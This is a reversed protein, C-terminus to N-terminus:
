EYYKEYWRISKFRKTQSYVPNATSGASTTGLSGQNLIGVKNTSGDAYSAVNLRSIGDGQKTLSVTKTGNACVGYPLCFRANTSVGTVGGTCADPQQSSSQTPNYLSIYLDSYQNTNAVAIYGNLAKVTGTGTATKITGDSNYESATLVYYWGYKAGTASYALQLNASDYNTDTFDYMESENIDTKKTSAANTATIASAQATTSYLDSRAIDRDLLVYVRNNQPSTQNLPFSRNGSALSVAAFRGAGDNHITIAPMEYFRQGSATGSTTSVGSANTTTTFGSFNGIRVLDGFNTRATDRANNLDVRFVQGGLDGFYLHDILGDADRDLTKIQSVVSYKLNTDTLGTNTKANSGRTASWILAGTTADFIYVGAGANTATVTPQYGDTEYAADYGGGVIMVNKIQNNFRIKGITPKSWSQGMLQLVPNATTTSVGSTSSTITGAVPNIQFLFGPNATTSGVNKVDLGYYSKGGMRMGGYINARTATFKNSSPVGYEVWATWPADIGYYPSSTSRFTNDASLLGDRRGGTRTATLATDTVSASGDLTSSDQLIENPLFSFVEQGNSVNVMHLIGQMSGFIAYDKRTSATIKGTGSSYTGELTLLIPDSHLVGGVQQMIPLTKVNSLTFKYPTVPTSVLANLYTSTLKYGLASLLYPQYVNRRWGSTGTTVATLETAPLTYDATLVNETTLKTLTTSDQVKGKDAGATTNITANIWLPRTNIQSAATATNLAASTVNPITLNALMGGKLASDGDNIDNPNWLDRTAKAVNGNSDLVNNSVDDKMQGNLVQYKKLNGLWLQQTSQITSGTGSIEPKFQPAFVYPYPTTTELQDAPVVYAGFSASDFSGQAVANVFKLLANQVKEGTDAFTYGGIPKTTGYTDGQGLKDGLMKLANSNLTNAYQRLYQGKNKEVTSDRVSNPIYCHDDITTGSGLKECVEDPAKTLLPSYGITALYIRKKSTKPANAAARVLNAIYSWNGRDQYKEAKTYDTSLETATLATGLKMEYYEGNGGNNSNGYGNATNYYIAPVDPDTGTIITDRLIANNGSNPINANAIVNKLLLSAQPPAIRTPAGDTLFFVGQTSCQKDSETTLKEIPANYLNNTITGSAALDMGQVNVNDSNYSSTSFNNVANPSDTRSGLLYAYTEAFITVTPTSGSSVSKIQDILYQRHTKGNTTSNLPKAEVWINSRSTGFKSLGIYTRDPIKYSGDTNKANLTDELSRKLADLRSIGTTGNYSGDKADNMSSSNDIALMIIPYNTATPNQYIQFDSANSATPICVTTTLAASMAMVLAKHKLSVDRKDVISKMM